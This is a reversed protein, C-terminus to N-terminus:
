LLNHFSHHKALSPCSCRHSGCVNGRSTNNNLRWHDKFFFMNLLKFACCRTRECCSPLPKSHGPPSTAGRGGVRRRPMEGLRIRGFARSSLHVGSRIETSTDTLQDPSLSGVGPHGGGRQGLPLQSLSETIFCHAAIACTQVCSRHTTEKHDAPPVAGETLADM